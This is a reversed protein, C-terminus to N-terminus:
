SQTDDEQQKQWVIRKEKFESLGWKLNIRNEIMIMKLEDAQKDM